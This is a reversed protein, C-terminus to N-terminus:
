AGIQQEGLALRLTARVHPTALFGVTSIFYRLPWPGGTPWFAALPLVGRAEHDYFVRDVWRERGIADTYNRVAHWIFEIYRAALPERYQPLFLVRSIRRYRVEHVFDTFTTADTLNVNANPELCHRDGGSIVPLGTERAMRIVACNDSAPQLGNLELAHIHAGYGSFFERLLASHTARDLRLECSYPHNLVLLVDPLADLDALLSGLLCLDPAATYRAMEAALSRAKDAPLNHVGIHFVTERYPVTWELSYPAEMGLAQLEACAELDDHDTISVLPKLHLGERIQKTELAWAAHAHLPPRWFAREFAIGSGSERRRRDSAERVLSEVAPIHALLRPIFDLGEKSHMTHSHLSVATTATTPASRDRWLCNVSRAIDCVRAIKKMFCKDGSNDKLLTVPTHFLERKV